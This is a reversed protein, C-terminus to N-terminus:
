ESEKSAEKNEDEIKWLRSAKSIFLLSPIKLQQKYMRCITYDDDVALFFIWDPLRAKVLDKKVVHAPRHDGDERMLMVYDASDVGLNKSLWYATDKRTREPRGTVFFPSHVKRLAHFLEAGEYILRDAATEQTSFFRDWQKESGQILPIRHSCNAVVGDIDFIFFGM